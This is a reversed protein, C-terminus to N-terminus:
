FVRSINYQGDFNTRGTYVLPCERFHKDHTTVDSVIYFGYGMWDPDLFAVYISGPHNNALQRMLDKADNYSLRKKTTMEDETSTFKM